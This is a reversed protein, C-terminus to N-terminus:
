FLGFDWQLASYVHDSTALGTFPGFDEGSGYDAIGLRARVSMEIEYQVEARILHGAQLLAGAAIVSAELRVPWRPLRYGLRAGLLPHDLALLGAGRDPSSQGAGLEAIAVLNERLYHVGAMAIFLDTDDLSTRPAGGDSDDYAFTRGLHAALEAKLVVPGAPAAASAGLMSFRDHELDIEFADAAPDGDVETGAMAVAGQQDYVSAAYIGVDFGPGNYFVRGFPQQGGLELGADPQHRWRAARDALEPYVDSLFSWSGTPPPRHGWSQEHVVGADIRVSRLQWSARSLLVPLRVDQADGMGPERADRPTLVDVPSILFAEGWAFAERGATVSVPDRSWSVYLERPEVLFEYEDLTPEPHQDRHVLYAFDYEARMGAVARWEDLSLHMSLDLRSRTRALRGPRRADDHLWYGASLGLSGRAQLLRSWSIEDAAAADTSESPAAATDSPDEGFDFADDQERDAQPNAPPDAEVRACVITSLFVAVFARPLRHARSSCWSKEHGHRAHL